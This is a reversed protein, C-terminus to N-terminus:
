PNENLWTLAHEVLTTGQTMLWKERWFAHAVRDIMRQETEKGTLYRSLRHIFSAAERLRLVDPLALLEEATLPFQSCYARGFTDIIPWEQGTGMVRVPWWSLAIALDLVRLDPGAFEFDLVASVDAGIMLMNSPDYDRHLWQQPLRAYLTPATQLVHELITRLRAREAAVPLRDLDRLPENAAVDTQWAALNGFQPQAPLNLVPSLTALASDLAALGRAAGTAQALDARDPHEGPLLPLLVAYDTAGTETMLRMGEAGDNAPIPLPVQFPVGHAVLTRLLAFEAQARPWAAAHILRLVYAMGNATEARWIRSNTGRLLPAIQWPGAIPWAQWLAEIEMPAEEASAEPSCVMYCLFRTTTAARESWVVKNMVSHHISDVTGIECDYANREM